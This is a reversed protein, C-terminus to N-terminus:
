HLEASGDLLLLVSGVAREVLIYIRVLLSRLYREILIKHPLRPSCPRRPLRMDNRPSMLRKAHLIFDRAHEPTQSGKSLSLLRATKHM